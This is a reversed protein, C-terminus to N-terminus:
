NRHISTFVTEYPLKGGRLNTLIIVMLTITGGVTTGHLLWGMDTSPYFWGIPTVRALVLVTVTLVKLIKIIYIYIKYIHQMCLHIHTDTFRM